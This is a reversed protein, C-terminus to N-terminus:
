FFSHVPPTRAKATTCEVMQAEDLCVRWWEVAVLPSPVAMYRKQNRFRRGDESNSHPIDVYNLESRLVDYTTIVVDQEALVHPQIFGHKKVGQYVLVRLSSCRVHRNIEEVWQHCISSPSIILTAGTPVPTMAVLCHPCYFPTTGLSEEKYNVCEAHQWLLCNLCQVRAKYDVLGLEGCICEFRYDPTNFPVVVSARTPPEGLTDEPPREEEKVELESDKLPSPCPDGNAKISPAEEVGNPPNNTNQPTLVSDKSGDGELLTNQSGQSLDGVSSSTCSNLSEELPTQSDGTESDITTVAAKIAARRTVRGPGRDPTSPKQKVAATKKNKDKYKKGLKFSGALGRGKVQEVMEEKILKSLTRKIHNRNKLLDYAYNARIYTFIANVSAGKGVRMEKIATLLMVRVAPYSVKEKPRIERKFYDTRERERPPPPVFYNVSQGKLMFPPPLLSVAPLTLGGQDLGQRTNLLILALVEVTKGLGMEDALIGGPWDVGALPFERILSGTYPNYYLKKECLTVVERWLFHLSKEQTVDTKYRERKLMWNVAQCQYPRLIPILAEHQVNTVLEQGEEQHLHRVFDYLEEVNQRELDTDCEEEENEVVEPIIFDYFLEMLKQLLQNAKRIRGNGESLFEPRGLGADLIYIGLKIYVEDHKHCLQILRRRQLWELDELVSKSLSCEVPILHEVGPGQEETGGAQGENTLSVSLDDGTRQLTFRRSGVDLPFHRSHISFEGILAKWVLDLDSTPLVTLTLTAAPESAPCPAEERLEKAPFSSSCGAEAAEKSTTAMSALSPGPTSTQEDNGEIIIVGENRRDEHMNWNLRKKAEEDVRVPPARKRRNSM